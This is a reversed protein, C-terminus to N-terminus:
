KYRGNKRDLNDNVRLDTLIIDIFVDDGTSYGASSSIIYRYWTSSVKPGEILTLGPEDQLEQIAMFIEERIKKYNADFAFLILYLRPPFLFQNDLFSAYKAFVQHFGTKINKRVSSKEFNSRILKSEIIAVRSTNNFISIDTRGNGISEETTASFDHGMFRGNLWNSLSASLNNEQFLTKNDIRYLNADERIRKIGDYIIEPLDFIIGSQDFYYSLADATDNVRRQIYEADRYFNFSMTNSLKNALNKMAINMARFDREKKRLEYSNEFYREIRDKTHSLWTHLEFIVNKFEQEIDKKSHLILECRELIDHFNRRFGERGDVLRRWRGDSKTVIRLPLFDIFLRSIMSNDTESNIIIVNHRAMKKWGAADQYLKDLNDCVYFNINRDFFVYGFNRKHSNKFFESSSARLLDGNSADIEFIICELAVDIISKFPSIIKLKDQLTVIFSKLREIYSSHPLRSSILNLQSFQERELFNLLKVREYQSENYKLILHNLRQSYFSISFLVNVNLSILYADLREEEGYDREFLELHQAACKSYVPHNLFDLYYRM